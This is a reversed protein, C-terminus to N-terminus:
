EKKADRLPSASLSRLEDVVALEGEVSGGAMFRIITSLTYVTLERPHGGMRKMFEAAMKGCVRYEDETLRRDMNGVTSM